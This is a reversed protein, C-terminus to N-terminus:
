LAPTVMTWRGVGVTGPGGAEPSTARHGGCRHGPLEGDGGVGDDVEPGGLLGRGREQGGEALREAGRAHRLGRPPHGAGVGLQEARVLGVQRREGVLVAVVLEDHHGADRDPGDALVVHQREDPDRVDAVDRGVADHPEGLQGPDHLVEAVPHLGLLPQGALDGLVQVPVQAGLADAHDHLGLV